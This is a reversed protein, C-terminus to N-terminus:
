ETRPLAVPSFQGILQTKLSLNGPLLTLRNYTVSLYGYTAGKQRGQSYLIAQADSNGSDFGGPSLHLAADFSSGGSPGNGTRHYGLYLQYVEVSVDYVDLAGFYTIGTQHKAEVGYRFDTEGTDGYLDSVAFRYGIAGESAKLRVSFPTSPQYTEVM